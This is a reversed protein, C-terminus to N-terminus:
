DWIFWIKTLVKFLFVNTIYTVTTIFSSMSSIKELLTSSKKLLRKNMSKQQIKWASEDM